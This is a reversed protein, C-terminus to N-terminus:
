KLCKSKNCRCIIKAGDEPMNHRILAKREVLLSTTGNEDEEMLPRKRLPLPRSRPQLAKAKKYKACSKKLLPACPDVNEKDHQAYGAASHNGSMHRYATVQYFVNGDRTKANNKVKPFILTSAAYTEDLHAQLYSPLPSFIPPPSIDYFTKISFPIRMKDSRVCRNLYECHKWQHSLNNSTSCPIFILRYSM